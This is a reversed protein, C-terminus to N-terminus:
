TSATGHVLVVARARAPVPMMLLGEIRHSFASIFAGIETDWAPGGEMQYALGHGLGLPV